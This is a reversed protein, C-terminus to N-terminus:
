LFIVKKGSWVNSVLRNTIGKPVVESNCQIKSWDPTKNGAQFLMKNTFPCVGGYGGTLSVAFCDKIETNQSVGGTICQVREIRNIQNGAQYIKGSDAWCRGGWGGVLCKGDTVKGSPCTYQVHPILAKVQELYPPNAERYAILTEFNVLSQNRTEPDVTPKIGAIIKTLLWYRLCDLKFQYDDSSLMNLLYKNMTINRKQAVLIIHKKLLQINHPGHNSFEEVEHIYRSIENAFTDASKKFKNSKMIDDITSLIAQLSVLPILDKKQYELPSHYYPVVKKRELDIAQSSSQSLQKKKYQQISHTNSLNKNLFRLPQFKRDNSIHTYFSKSCISSIIILITTYLIQKSINPNPNIPYNSM